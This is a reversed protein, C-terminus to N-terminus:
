ESRFRHRLSVWVLDSVLDTVCYKVIKESPIWLALYSTLGENSGTLYDNGALDLGRGVNFQAISNALGDLLDTVGLGLVLKVALATTDERGKMCLASVDVTANLTAYWLLLTSTVLTHHETISGVLGVVAHWQGELQAVEEEDLEVLDTALLRRWHWVETRIGLALYGNLIVTLGVLWYADVGDNDRSLVVLEVSIVLLHKGLDTLVDLVDEDWADDVVTEVLLLASEEVVLKGEKDVRGALEDDTTRVAIGTECTTLDNDISVAAM